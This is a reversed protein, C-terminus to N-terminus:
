GGPGGKARQREQSLRSAPGRRYDGVRGRQQAVHPLSLPRLLRGELAMLPHRLELDAQEAVADRAAGRQSMARAWPRSESRSASYRSTVRRCASARTVTSSASASLAAFM